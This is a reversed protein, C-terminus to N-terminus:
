SANSWLTAEYVTLGAAEGSFPPAVGYPNDISGKFSALEPNEPSLRCDRSRFGGYFDAQVGFIIVWSSCVLARLCNCRLSVRRLRLSFCWM